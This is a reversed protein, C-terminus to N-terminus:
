SSTASALTPWHQKEEPKVLAEIRSPQFGRIVQGHFLLVPLKNGYRAKVGDAELAYDMNVRQVKVGLQVLLSETRVCDNCWDNTYLTAPQETFPWFHHAKVTTKISDGYQAVLLVPVLWFWRQM